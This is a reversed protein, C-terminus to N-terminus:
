TDADDIQGVLELNEFGGPGIQELRGDSLQMSQAPGEAIVVIQNNEAVERAATGFQRRARGFREIRRDRAATSRQFAAGLRLERTEEGLASAGELSADGAIEFM